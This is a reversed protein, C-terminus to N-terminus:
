RRNKPEINIGDKKKKGGLGFSGADPNDKNAKSGSMTRDGYTFGDAFDKMEGPFDASADKFEDGVDIPNPVVVTPADWGGPMTGLAHPTYLFDEWMYAVGEKPDDFDFWKDPGGDDGYMDAYDRNWPAIGWDRNWPGDIPLADDWISDDGPWLEEAFTGGSFPGDDFLDNKKKKGYWPRNGYGYAYPSRYYPRAGYAYKSPTRYAYAPGRAYPSPHGYAPNGSYGSGSGYNSGSYPSSYGYAPSSTSPTSYSYPTAYSSGYGYNYPSRYSNSSGSGYYNSYPSSYNGGSGYSYNSYPSYNQAIVSYSSFALAASSAWLFIKLRPM